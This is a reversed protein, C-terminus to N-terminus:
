RDFDNCEKQAVRYTNLGIYHVFYTWNSYFVVGGSGSPRNKKKYALPDRSACNRARTLACVKVLRELKFHKFLNTKRVCLDISIEIFQHM